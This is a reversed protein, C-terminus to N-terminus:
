CADVKSREDTVEVEEDDDQQDVIWKEVAKGWHKYIIWAKKRKMFKTGENRVM